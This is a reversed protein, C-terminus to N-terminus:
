NMKHVFMSPLLLSTESVSKQYQINKWIFNPKDQKCHIREREVDMLVTM